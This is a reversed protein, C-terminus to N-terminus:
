KELEGRRSKRLTDTTRRAKGVPDTWFGKKNARAHIALVGGALAHTWVWSFCEKFFRITVGFPHAAGQSTGHSHLVRLDRLLSM